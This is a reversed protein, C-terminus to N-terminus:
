RGARLDNAPRWIWSKTSGSRTRDGVRNPIREVFPRFRRWVAPGDLGESKKFPQALGVIPIDARTTFTPTLM